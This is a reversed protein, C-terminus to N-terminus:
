KVNVDFVKLEVTRLYKTEYRETALKQERENEREGGGELWGKRRLKRGEGKCDLQASAQKTDYKFCSHKIVVVHVYSCM